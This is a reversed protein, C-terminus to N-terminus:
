GPRDQGCTSQRRAGLVDPGGADHHIIEENKPKNIPNNLSLLENNAAFTLIKQPFIYFNGKISKQFFSIAAPGFGALSISTDSM